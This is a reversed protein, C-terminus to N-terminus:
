PLGEIEFTFGLIDLLVTQVGAPRSFQLEFEQEGGAEVTWPLQPTPAQLSSEGANSTLKVNDLMVTLASEGLNRIVGSFVIVDRQSDVFADRLEVEPQAPLPAPPEYPLVFRAAEPATPDARFVWTLPPQLDRPVQYGVSGEVTEGSAVPITLAGNQGQATAEVSSQYRQGSGDELTLSFTAPDVQADSGNALRYEIVFYPNDGTEVIGSQLVTVTLGLVRQENESALSEEPLYRSRVVLRNTQSGGLLIMTLGPRHQEMPSTDDGPVRQAQPSGFVLANGNSLTLTIRDASTLGALMSETTDSYPLGVVYNVMTGYVWVAASNDEAPIPWRGEEPMVPIVSFTKSNLVLSDPVVTTISVGNGQIVPEAPVTPPSIFTPLKGVSLPESGGTPRDRQMSLLASVAVAIVIILGLLILLLAWTPPFPRSDRRDRRRPPSEGGPPPQSRQSDTPYAPGPPPPEYPGRPQPQPQGYPAQDQYAYGPSTSTPAPYSGTQQSYSQGPGSQYPYGSSPQPPPGYPGSQYTSQPAAQHPYGASAQPPTDYRGPQYSPPVSPAHSPYGSGYPGPQHQSQGQYPAQYSAQPPAGYPESQRPPQGQQPYGASTQPPPSTQYPGYPSAQSQQQGPGGLGQQQQAYGAREPPPQPQPQSLGSSSAAVDAPQQGATFGGIGNVIMTIFIDYVKRREPDSIMTYAENIEKFREEANSETSVDPHYQLVLKRYAVRIEEQTASQSVGLVAYYDKIMAARALRQDDM